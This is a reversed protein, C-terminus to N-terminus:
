KTKAKKRLGEVAKAIEDLEEPSAEERVLYSILSSVAGGFYNKAITQVSKKLVKERSITPQYYYAMGVKRRKLFGKQVLRSMITMITTYALKRQKRIKEVVYRVTSEGKNDWIILMVQTELESLKPKKAKTRM